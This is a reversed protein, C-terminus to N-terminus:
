LALASDILPRSWLPGHPIFAQSSRWRSGASDGRADDGKGERHTNQCEWRHIWAREDARAPTKNSRSARVDAPVAALSINCTIEDSFCRGHVGRLEGSVKELRKREGQPQNVFCVDSCLLEPGSRAFPTVGDRLECVDSPSLSLAPPDTFFDQQLTLPPASSRIPLHVPIM